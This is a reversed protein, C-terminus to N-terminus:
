RNSYNLSLFSFRCCFLFLSILTFLNFFYDSYYMTACFIFFLVYIWSFFTSACYIIRPNKESVEKSWCKPKALFCHHHNTTPYRVREVITSGNMRTSITLSIKLSVQCANRRLARNECRAEKARIGSDDPANANESVVFSFFHTLWQWYM